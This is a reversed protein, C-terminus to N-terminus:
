ACAIVDNAAVRTSHYTPSGQTAFPWLVLLVRLCSSSHSSSVPFSHFIGARHLAVPGVAHAPLLLLPLVFLLRLPLVVAACCRMTFQM